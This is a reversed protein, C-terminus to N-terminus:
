EDYHISQEDSLVAFIEKLTTPHDPIKPHFEIHGGLPISLMFEEFDNAMIEDVFHPNSNTKHGRKLGDLEINSSIELKAERKIGDTDWGTDSFYYSMENSLKKVIALNDGKDEFIVPNTMEYVGNWVHRDVGMQFLVIYIPPPIIEGTSTYKMKKQSRDQEISEVDVRERQM